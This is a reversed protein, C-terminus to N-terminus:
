LARAGDLAFLRRANGEFIAEQAEEPVPLQRVM